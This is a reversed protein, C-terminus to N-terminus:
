KKLSVKRDNRTLLLKFFLEHGIGFVIYLILIDVLVYETIRQYLVIVLFLLILWFFKMLHWGDMIFSFYRTSGWFKEGQAHDNNKWKNTWSKSDNWFQEGLQPKNRADFYQAIRKWVSLNYDKEKSLIDMSSEWFTGFFLIILSTM